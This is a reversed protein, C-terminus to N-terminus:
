KARRDIHRERSKGGDRKVLTKKKVSGFNVRLNLRKRGYFCYKVVHVPM